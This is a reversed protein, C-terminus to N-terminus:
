RDPPDSEVPRRVLVWGRRDAELLASAYLETGGAYSGYRRGDGLVVLLVQLQDGPLQELSYGSIGRHVPPM